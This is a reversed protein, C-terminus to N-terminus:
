RVRSSPQSDENREIDEDDSDSDSDTYAFSYKVTSEPATSQALKSAVQMETAIVQMARVLLANTKEPCNTQTQGIKSGLTLNRISM